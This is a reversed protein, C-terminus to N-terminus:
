RYYLNLHYTDPFFTRVTPSGAPSSAPSIATSSSVSARPSSRAEPQKIVSDSKRGPATDGSVMKYVPVQYLQAYQSDESRGGSTIYRFHYQITSCHKLHIQQLAM